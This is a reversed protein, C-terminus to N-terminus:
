QVKLVKTTAVGLNTTAKIVYAGSAYNTMDIVTNNETAVVTEVLTGLISYVQITSGAAVEVTVLNTVPNPYANLEVNNTIQTIGAYPNLTDISIAKYIIYNDTVADEDGRIHLGPENDWQIWVHAFDNVDKAITPFTNSANTGDADSICVPDQWVGDVTRCRLWAGRYSQPNPTADTKAYDDGEMVTTFACYVNNNADVGLSGMSTISSYFIGFPWDTGADVFQWIINDGNLDFSYGVTDVDPSVAMDFANTGVTSGDWEGAGMDENWYLLYDTLPFYSSGGDDSADEDLVRMRGFVVHVLGDHDVVIDGFNDSTFLTDAQGDSDMDILTGATGDYADVPFDVIPYTEWTEGYDVSKWLRVDALGGFYVIAVISDQADIAYVDGNAHYYYTNFDPVKGTYTWSSGADDSKYLHLAEIETYPDSAYDDVAIVYYNDGSSAARPWLMPEPGGTLNNQSWASGAAGINQSWGFLDGGSNYHNAVFETTGNSMLTPWGTRVNDPHINDDTGMGTTYQWSSGNFHNYGTGRTAGGPADAQDEIWVASISGDAYVIMRAATASNSQLDYNTRGIPTGVPIDYRSNDGFHLNVKQTPMKATTKTGIATKNVVVDSQAFLGMSFVLVLGLIFLKKM